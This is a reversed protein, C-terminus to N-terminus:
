AERNWRLQTHCGAYDTDTFGEVIHHGHNAILIGLRPTGKLYGLIQTVADWHSTRLATLFQSVVSVSYAIDPRTISLCNLKGVVRRYKKPNHLLRGDEYKLKLKPIMTEDCPKAEFQGADDLLDNHDLANMEEIMSARWGSHALAEGVTKLVLISDKRLAIPLDLKPAPSPPPSDFGNSAASPADSESYAECPTSI